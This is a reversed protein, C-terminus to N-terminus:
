AIHGLAVIDRHCTYWMVGCFIVNGPQNVFTIMDSDSLGLNGSLRLELMSEGNTYETYKPGGGAYSYIKTPDSADVQETDQAIALPQFIAVIIFLCRTLKPSMASM